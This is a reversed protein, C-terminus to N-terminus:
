SPSDQKRNLRIRRVMSMLIGTATILVGLWLLNIFPFKYAKLTVYKMISHSEKLGLEVRDGAVQNIRFILSEAIVTDNNIYLNDSSRILLPQSEYTTNHASHIKLSAVTASDTSKFRPNPIHDGTSIKELVFYGGSYMATDGAKMWLNRFQ